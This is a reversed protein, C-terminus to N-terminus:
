REAPPICREALIDEVAVLKPLRAIRLSGHEVESARDEPVGAGGAAPVCAECGADFARRRRDVSLEMLEDGDRLARDREDASV